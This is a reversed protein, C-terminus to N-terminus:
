AYAALPREGRFVRWRASGELTAVLTDGAAPLILRVRGHRSIARGLPEFWARELRMAEDRWATADRRGLAAELGELSALMSEDGRSEPLDALAAPVPAVAAGSLRALGRLFPDAAVISAYPSGVRAPLAGAGWFWLSNIAPRREDDRRENVPHGGLIMQAETLARRWSVRGGGEPFARSVDRGRADEPALTRPVEDDPVRVYWRDPATAVFALGDDRFHRNLAELLAEAEDPAIGLAAGRHLQVGESEVRLHVPDARLWAGERALEIAAVPVPDPLSCRRGLWATRGGPHRSLDARALWKELAPLRLSRIEDPAGASALLDPILLDLPL